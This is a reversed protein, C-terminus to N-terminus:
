KSRGKDIKPSIWSNPGQVLCDADWDLNVLNRPARRRHSTSKDLVGLHPDPGLHRKSAGGGGGGQARPVRGGWWGPGGRGPAKCFPGLPTPSSLAPLSPTQSSPLTRWDCDPIPPPGGFVLQPWVWMQPSGIKCGMIHIARNWPKLHSWSLHNTCRSTCTCFRNASDSCFDVPIYAVIYALMVALAVGRHPSSLVDSRGNAQWTWIPCSFPACLNRVSRGQVPTLIGLIPFLPNWPWFVGDGLAGSFPAKLWFIGM